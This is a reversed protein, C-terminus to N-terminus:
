ENEVFRQIWAEESYSDIIERKIPEYPESLFEEINEWDDDNMLFINEEKYFDCQKVDYYNTILKKQMLLAEIPRLTLGYNGDTVIDLVAKSKKVVELYEAYQLPANNVCKNGELEPMNLVYFYTKLGKEELMKKVNRIMTDRGKNNAIFAVDYLMKEECKEGVLAKTKKTYFTKNHKFHYKQCDTLDYTWIDWGIGKINKVLKENKRIDVGDGIRGFLYYILSKGKSHKSIWRLVSLNVDTAFCIITDYNRLKKKWEGLSFYTGLLPLNRLIRITMRSLNAYVNSPSVRIHDSEIMEVMHDGEGLLLLINMREIKNKEM